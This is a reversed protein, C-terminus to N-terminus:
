DASVEQIDPHAPIFRCGCDPAHSEFGPMWVHCRPDDSGPILLLAGSRHMWSVMVHLPVGAEGCAEGLSVREDQKGVDFGGLYTTTGRCMSSGIYRV